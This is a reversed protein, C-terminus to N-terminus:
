PANAQGAVSSLEKKAAWCLLRRRARMHSHFCIWNRILPVGRQGGTGPKM